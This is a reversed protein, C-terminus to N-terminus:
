YVIVGDVLECSETPKIALASTLGIKWGIFSDDCDMSVSGDTRTFRRTFDCEAPDQDILQGISFASIGPVLEDLYSRISRTKNPVHDQWDLKKLVHSNGLVVFTKAYSVFLSAM